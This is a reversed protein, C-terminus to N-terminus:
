LWVNERSFCWFRPSFSSIESIVRFRFVSDSLSWFFHPCPAYWSYSAIWSLWDFLYTTEPPHMDYALIIINVEALTGYPSVDPHDLYWSWCMLMPCTHHPGAERTKCLALAMWQKSRISGCNGINLLRTRAIKGFCIALRRLPQFARGAEL